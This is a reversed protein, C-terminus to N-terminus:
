DTTSCMWFRTPLSMGKQDFRATEMVASQKQEGFPGDSAPALDPQAQIADSCPISAELTEDVSLSVETTPGSYPERCLGILDTFLLVLTLSSFSVSLGICSGSNAAWDVEWQLLDDKMWYLVSWVPLADLDFDVVRSGGREALQQESSKHIKEIPGWPRLLDYVDGISLNGPLGSIDRGRRPDFERNEKFPVAGFPCLTIEDGIFQDNKKLASQTVFAKEAALLYLSPM